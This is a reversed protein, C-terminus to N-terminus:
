SLGGLFSLFYFMACISVTSLDLKLLARRLVKPDVEDDPTKAPTDEVVHDDSHEASKKEDMM